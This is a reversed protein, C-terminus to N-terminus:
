SFQSKHNSELNILNRIQRCSERVDLERCGHCMWRLGFKAFAAVELALRRQNIFFREKCCNCTTKRCHKRLRQIQKTKHKSFKKDNVKRNRFYFEKLEQPMPPIPFKSDQLWCYKQGSTHQSPPVISQVTYGRFEIKVEQIKLCTLDPDPNIFLNHISKNSRFKPRPAGDIMRELLDNAEESDGEVDVIDGLLIGMNYNKTTNEFYSRWRDVSWNINWELTIPKKSEPQIPIPKLGLKVYADFFKLMRM